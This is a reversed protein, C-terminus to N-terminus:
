FFLVFRPITIYKQSSIAFLSLIIVFNISYKKYVIDILRQILDLKHVLNNQLEHYYKWFM